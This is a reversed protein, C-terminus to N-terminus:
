RSKVHLQACVEAQENCSGEVREYRKMKGDFVEGPQVYYAETLVVTETATPFTAVPFAFKHPPRGSLDGQSGDADGQNGDGQNQRRHHINGRTKLSRPAGTVTSAGALFVLFLSFATSRDFLM